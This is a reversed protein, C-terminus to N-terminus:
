SIKMIGNSILWQIGSIFSADDIQEDAWWGANNKIWAPIADDSGTGQETPPITMINNSILWQIGSVFSGDDIQGDAWWGANNKIWAPIATDVPLQTPASEIGLLREANRYAFNDQVAPDLGGIFSRSKEILLPQVEFHWPTLMDTGWMIRDPHKEIIDSWIKLDRDLSEEFTSRFIPLFIEASLDFPNEPYDPPTFRSDGYLCCHSVVNYDLSYYVNPYKEFLADLNQTTSKGHGIGEGHLLFTLDPHKEIMKKLGGMHKDESHMMIIMNREEVVEYVGRMEPGDSKMGELADIYLAVEGVGVTYPALDLLAELQSPPPIPYRDEMWETVSLPILFHAIRDPYENDFYRMSQITELPLIDILFNFAFAGKINQKDMMCILDDQSLHRDFVAMPYPANHKIVDPPDLAWPQHLHADYLPGTYYPEVDFERPTPSTDCVEKDTDQGLAYNVQAHVSPLAMFITSAMLIVILNSILIKQVFSM